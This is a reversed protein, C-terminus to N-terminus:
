LKDQKLTPQSLLESEIYKDLGRKSQKSHHTDSFHKERESGISEPTLQTPPKPPDAIYRGIQKLISIRQDPTFTQHRKRKAVKKEKGWTGRIKEHIVIYKITFPREDKAAHIDRAWNLRGKKGCKPCKIFTPSRSKKKKKATVDLINAYEAWKHIKGDEHAVMLLVGGDPLVEVAHRTAERSCILCPRKEKQVSLLQIM